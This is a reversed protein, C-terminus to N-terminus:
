NHPLANWQAYSYRFGPHTGTTKHIYLAALEKVEEADDVGLAFLTASFFGSGGV